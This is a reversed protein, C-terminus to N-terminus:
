SLDQLTEGFLKTKMKKFLYKRMKSNNFLIVTPLQCYSFLPMSIWSLYTWYKGHGENIDLPDNRAYSKSVFSPILLIVILLISVLTGGAGIISNNSTQFNSFKEHRSDLSATQNLTTVKTHSHILFNWWHMFTDKHNYVWIHFTIWILTLFMLRTVMWLPDNDAVDQFSYTTKNLHQMWTMLIKNNIINEHPLKGTCIHLDLEANQYGLMYTVFIFVTSFTVACLTICVSVFQDNLAM